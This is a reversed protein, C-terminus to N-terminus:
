MAFGLYQMVEAYDADSLTKVATAKAREAVEADKRPQLRVFRKWNKSFAEVLFEYVLEGAHYSDAGLINVKGKPFINVRVIREAFSMGFSLKANENPSKVDQVCVPPLVLATGPPLGARAAALLEADDEAAVLEHEALAKLYAAVKRLDVLIRPSNRRVKTKFNYLNARYWEVAIPAPEGNADRGAKAENLFDVWADLVVKGDSLDPRLTGPVQTRGTSPFCKPYYKHGAGEDLDVVVLPELASSFCTGDGQLLRPRGTTAKKLKDQKKDMKAQVFVAGEESGAKIKHGFNSCIAHVAGAPELLQILNEPRTRMNTLNAEFMAVFMVLPTFPADPAAALTEDSAKAHGPLYAEKEEKVGPM